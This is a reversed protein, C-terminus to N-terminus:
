PSSELWYLVRPVDRGRDVVCEITARALGSAAQGYSQIRFVSSRVTIFDEFGAFKEKTIGNISLLQGISTYGALAERRRIVAEALDSDLGPLTNLVELPATNINIRGPLIEEEKLTLNDVIQEFISETVPRDKETASRAYYDESESDREISPDRTVDLLDALHEFESQERAKVISEAAWPELNLQASLDQASARNVNLRRQSSGNVNREYSYVTLYAFWGRDLRGDANDYPESADGDDEEPDLLGNVNRDEGYLLEPTVGRVLLLERVTRLPGNRIEYPHALAGYYGREIGDPEAQENQDRWDIIAGAIPETMNPLKLLQERTAVNVNLKASEDGVGYWPRPIPEYGDHIVSFTGGTLEVDQLDTENDYWPDLTTDTPDVDDMIEAIAREVGARALCHGTMRDKEINAIVLDQRIAFSLGGALLSLVAIAWLVLLLAAGRRPFESRM